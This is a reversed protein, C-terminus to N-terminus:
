ARAVAMGRKEPELRVLTKNREDAAAILARELNQDAAVV